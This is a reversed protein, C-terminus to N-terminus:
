SNRWNLRIERSMMLPFADAHLARDVIAQGHEPIWLDLDVSPVVEPAPGPVTVTVASPHVEEPSVDREELPCSCPEDEYNASVGHVPCANIPDPQSM